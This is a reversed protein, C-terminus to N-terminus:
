GESWVKLRLPSATSYGGHCRSSACGKCLQADAAVIVLSNGECIPPHSIIAEALLPGLTTVVEHDTLAEADSLSRYSEVTCQGTLNEQPNMCRDLTLCM